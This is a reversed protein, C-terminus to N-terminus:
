APRPLGVLWPLLQARVLALSARQGVNIRRLRLRDVTRWNNLGRATTFALQFGSQELMRAVAPTNGGSPYAFVPLTHGVERELDQRSGTAEAQAEALSVRNLLPHTRTHAGLTVGERALRRLTAWDLVRHPVTTLGLDACIKEVLSMATAHPLTKIYDRVQRAAATRQAPTTLALHGLPTSLPDRRATEQFAQHLRDWWFVREPQDPFSTPVFLTVPLGLRRLIPWAHEVFDCYADDFTVLVSRPPLPARTQSTQHLEPLSLVRYHAALYQMQETFAEPTASLLAPDLEPHAHPYDVRHYTLVRLIESSDRSLKELEGILRAFLPHRAVAAVSPRFLGKM